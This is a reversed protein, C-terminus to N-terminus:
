SASTRSNLWDYENEWVSTGDILCRFDTAYVIKMRNSDNLVAALLNEEM